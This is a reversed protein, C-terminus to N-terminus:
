VKYKLKSKIKVMGIRACLEQFRVQGLAKTGMDALQDKTSIFDARLSGEEICQRVYHYRVRIHKSREHFVHNKMLALASKNDVRLEVPGAEEQKLDALLWALWVRQTATSTAAVNEAECSSMTVVRQKLSHWNVLSSELFFLVRPTSHGNETNGTYDSNSYGVLKAGGSGRQYFCGQDITGAVYRLVRKLAAMHEM